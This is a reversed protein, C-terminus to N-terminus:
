AIFPNKAAFLSFFFCLFWPIHFSILFLFIGFRKSSQHAKEELEPHPPLLSVGEAPYEKDIIEKEQQLPCVAEFSFPNMMNADWYFMMYFNCM